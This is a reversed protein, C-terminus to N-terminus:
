PFNLLATKGFVRKACMDYLEAAQRETNVAIRMTWVMKGARGSPEKTVGRFPSAYPPRTKRRDTQSVENQDMLNLRRFDLYNRNRYRFSKRRPFLFKSLSVRKKLDYIYTQANFHGAKNNSNQYAGWNYRNVREFDQEDIIAFQGQTLPIGRAGKPVAGKPISTRAVKNKRNM